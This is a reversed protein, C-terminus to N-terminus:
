AISQDFALRQDIRFRPVGERPKERYHRIEGGGVRTGDRYVELPIVREPPPAALRLVETARDVTSPPAEPTSQCGFLSLIAVTM